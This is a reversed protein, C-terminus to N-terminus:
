GRVTGKGTCQRHKSPRSKAWVWLDKGAEKLAGSAIEGLVFLGALVLLGGVVQLNSLDPYTIAAV